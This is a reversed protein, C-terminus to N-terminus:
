IPQYRPSQLPAPAATVPQSAEVPPAPAVVVPAASQGFTPSIPVM